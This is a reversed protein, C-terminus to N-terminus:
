IDCIGLNQARLSCNTQNEKLVKENPVEQKLSLSCM